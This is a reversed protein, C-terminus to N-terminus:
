KEHLSKHCQYQCSVCFAQEARSCTKTHMRVPILQNSVRIDNKLDRMDYVSSITLQQTTFGSIFSALRSLSQKGSGGVGVALAHGARNNLVRSIRCVHHMADDFLVLDMAPNLENYENLAGKLIIALEDLTGIRDYVAFLCCVLLATYGDKGLRLLPTYLRTYSSNSARGGFTRVKALVGAREAALGILTGGAGEKGFHAFILPEQNKAQIVKGLNFKGFTRKAVEAAISRYKKGDEPSVLRDSFTRECEHLWLFM